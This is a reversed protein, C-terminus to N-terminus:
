WAVTEGRYDLFRGTDAMTLGDLVRIMGAGSEEVSLPANPGGMDTRVWGPHLSVVCIGHTRVELALGQMYKNLAAKSARYAISSAGTLAMSGLESSVFALRPARTKRLAPLFAEAVRLPGLSNVEFLDLAGAFDLDLPTQRQPGFAGANAVLVDLPGDHAAAAARIAAGDRQDFALTKIRDSFPALTRALTERAAEDRVCATVRGGRAAIRRTLELGLGRNAGTVLWHEATRDEAM